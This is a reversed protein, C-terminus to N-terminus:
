NIGVPMSLKVTEDVAEDKLIKGGLYGLDMGTRPVVAIDITTWKCCGNKLNANMKSPALDEAVRFTNDHSVSFSCYHHSSNGNFTFHLSQDEHINPTVTISIVM